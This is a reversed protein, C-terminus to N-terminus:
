LSHGHVILGPNCLMSAPLLSPPFPEHGLSLPQGAGVRSRHQLEERTLGAGALQSQEATGTAAEDPVTMFPSRPPRDLDALPESITRSIQTFKTFGMLRDLRLPLRPVVGM